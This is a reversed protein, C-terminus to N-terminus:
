GGVQLRSRDGGPRRLSAMMGPLLPPACRQGSGSGGRARSCRPLAGCPGPLLLDLLLLLSSSSARACGGPGPPLSRPSARPSAFNNGAPPRHRAALLCSRRAPILIPTPIPIPISTARSADPPRLRGAGSVPVSACVCAGARGPIRGLNGGGAAAGGPGAPLAAGAAPSRGRCPVARGSHAKVRLGVGARTHAGEPM